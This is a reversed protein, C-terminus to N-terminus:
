GLRFSARRMRRIEGCRCRPPLQSERRAVRTGQEHPRHTPGRPARWRLRARRCTASWRATVGYRIDSIFDLQFQASEQTATGTQPNCELSVCQYTARNSDSKQVAPDDVRVISRRSTEQASADSLTECCSEQKSISEVYPKQPDAKAGCAAILSCCLTASAPDQRSMM